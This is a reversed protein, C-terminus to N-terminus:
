EKYVTRKYNYGIIYINEWFIYPCYLSNTKNIFTRGLWYKTQSEATNDTILVYFSQGTEKYGVAVRWHGDVPKNENDYFGFRSIAIVDNKEIIEKVDNFVEQNFYVGYFPILYIWPFCNKTKFTVSNNCAWEIGNKFDIEDIGGDHWDRIGIHYGFVYYGDYIHTTINTVIRIFVWEHPNLSLPANTSIKCKLLEYSFPESYLYNYPYTTERFEIFGSLYVPTATQNINHNTVQVDFGFQFRTYYHDMTSITSFSLNHRFVYYPTSSGCDIYHMSVNFNNPQPSAGGYSYAISDGQWSGSDGFYPSSFLVNVKMDNKVFPKLDITKDLVFTFNTSKQAYYYIYNTVRYTYWKIKNTYGYYCMMIAGATPGCWGSFSSYYSSSNWQLHNYTWVWDWWGANSLGTFGDVVRGSEWDQTLPQLKNSSSGLPGLYSVAIMQAEDVEAWWSKSYVPYLETFLRLELQEATNSYFLEPKEKMLTFIEKKVTINTGAFPDIAETVTRTNTDIKGFAYYPYDDDIIVTDAPYNTLIGYSNVMRLVYVVPRCVLKSANAVIAGVIAGDKFVRWEFYKPVGDWGYIVVPKAALIAGDFGEMGAFASMELVSCGKSVRWYVSNTYINTLNDLERISLQPVECYSNDLLDIEPSTIIEEVIACNSLVSM